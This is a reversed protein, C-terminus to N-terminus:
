HIIIMTTTMTFTEGILKVTYRGSQLDSANVIINMKDTEVLQTRQIIGMADYIILQCPELTPNLLNLIFDGQNPNSVIIMNDDSSSISASRGDAGFSKCGDWNM